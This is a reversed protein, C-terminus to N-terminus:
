EISFGQFVKMTKPYFAWHFELEYALSRVMGDLGPFLTANNININYLDRMADERVLASNIV